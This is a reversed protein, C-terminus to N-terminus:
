ICDIYTRNKEERAARERKRKEQEDESDSSSSDSDSGSEWGNVVKGNRGKEVYTEKVAPLRQDSRDRVMDVEEHEKVDM